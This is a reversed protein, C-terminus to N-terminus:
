NTLNECQTAKTGHKCGSPVGCKSLAVVMGISVAIVRLRMLIIVAEVVPLVPLVALIALGILIAMGALGLAAAEVAEMSGVSTVGGMPIVIGGLTGVKMGLGDASTETGLMAIIALVQISVLVLVVIVLRPIIVMLPVIMLITVVCVLYFL